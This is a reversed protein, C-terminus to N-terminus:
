CLTAIQPTPFVANQGLLPHCHPLQSVYPVLSGQISAFHYPITWGNRAHRSDSTALAVMDAQIMAYLWGMALVLVLNAKSGQSNDPRFAPIM